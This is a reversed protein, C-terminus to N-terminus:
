RTAQCILARMRGRAPADGFRARLAEAVAATIAETDGKRETIQITLPAGQVLGKAAASASPSVCPLDVPRVTVEKFGADELLTQIAQVDSFGFPTEYFRPPDAPFFSMVTTHALEAFENNALSDWVNALLQGGPVLVRHAERLAAAKDPVFMLGFQCVVVDFSADDFPLAAADAQRWEVDLEPGLKGRAYALMPESLDSAVLKSGAPIRERLRRTVIGTGCAVELVRMNDTLRVRAALDEAYPEFFMPGLYRDYNEPV